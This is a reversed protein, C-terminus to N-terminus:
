DAALIEARLRGVIQGPLRLDLSGPALRENATHGDAFVTVSVGDHRFHVTSENTSLYYFEELMPHAPTAPSQFTNIQASDAFLATMAPDHLNRANVPPQLIPASLNLNYGYGYSSGTAKLKLKPDVYSFAPCVNVGRGTLYPHLAGLAPDFKRSGESGSQLWGFWYIQGGNTAGRKWRFAEGEFDNWYLQTAVGLQKLNSMCQVRRASAMGQGLTPLLIGALVGIVAIVVLLEVLTLAFLSHSRSSRSSM